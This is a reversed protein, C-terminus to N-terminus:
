NEAQDPSAPCATTWSPCLVKEILMNGVKRVALRNSASTQSPDNRNKTLVKSTTAPVSRAAAAIDSARHCRALHRAAALCSKQRSGKAQVLMRSQSREFACLSRPPAAGWASSSFWIHFPMRRLTWSRWVRMTLAIGCERGARSPSTTAAVCAMSQFGMETFMICMAGFLMCRKQLLWKSLIMLWM